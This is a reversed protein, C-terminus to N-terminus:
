MIKEKDEKVIMRFLIIKTALVIHSNKGCTTMDKRKVSAIQNAAPNSTTRNVTAMEKIIKM